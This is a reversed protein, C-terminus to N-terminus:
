EIEEEGSGEEEQPSSIQPSDADPVEENKKEPVMVRKLIRGAIGASESSSASDLFVVMAIQPTDAPAYCVFFGHTGMEMERHARQVTGTKGAVEIGDVRARGGTGFLVVNKLGRKMIDMNEASIYVTKKIAPAFEKITGGDPSIIEKVLYPKWVNGGNAVTSILSLLQLPTALIPGQGISLNLADIERRHPLYGDKEGPLDIGTARGLDFMAAFELMRAVGTRLGITGFFVNCSYPFALNIDVWGHGEEKWCHFVRDGVEIQGTCEIRDYEQITGSELSSLETIIKFVSGLSYTGQIARNLFPHGSRNFYSQLDNVDFGPKSVLALIQGNRPDMAVVCGRRDGMEENAIEQILQDVTLVLDNGPVSTRRGLVKRQHGLADVEIQLGGSRGRLYEDYTMELGYQGISDGSKYGKDRLFALQRETIEGTYGALHCTNRGLVHERVLGEQIFVGPLKLANEEILAVEQRNLKRKLFVRDFPNAYRTKFKRLIDSKDIFIIKSLIAAQKDPSEIDYPVFVLHLSPSDKVLVRKNRDYITGRPIGTDVTRICNRNSLNRYHPYRVVQLYFARLIIIAFFIRTLNVFIRGKEM